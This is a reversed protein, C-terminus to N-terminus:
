LDYRRAAPEPISGDFIRAADLARLEDLSLGSDLGILQLYDTGIKEAQDLTHYKMRWLIWSEAIVRKVRGKSVPTSAIACARWTGGSEGGVSINEPDGGFAEINEYVWDLAKIQDMLGYNGSKGQEATVQPLSMYGFVNLRQGVQVVIIGKRALESPDFEIEYSFGNTLGGGHYWLYVPRKEGAKAAGTCINIYLCDESLTPYGQYYFEGGILVSSAIDGYRFQQYPADGYKDCTRVGDWSEPDQPPAWRLKGVPPAAYPVGKFLTIGEYKGELEVGCMKGFKTEVIGIPM